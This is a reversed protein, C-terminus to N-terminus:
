RQKDAETRKRQLRGWRSGIRGWRNGHYVASKLSREIATGYVAGAIAGGVTGVSSVVFRAWRHRWGAGPKNM